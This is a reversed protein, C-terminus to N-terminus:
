AALPLAGGDCDDNAPPKARRARRTGRRGAARHWARARWMHVAGLRMTTATLLTAAILDVMSTFEISALLMLAEPSYMAMLMAGEHEMVGIVIAAGTFILALTILQGRTWGSLWRAPAEVLVRRMAKGTTTRGGALMALWILIMAATIM